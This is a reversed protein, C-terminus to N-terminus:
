ERIINVVYVKVDGNEATVCIELRNLGEEVPHYGEGAVTAKSSVPTATLSIFGCDEGVIVSYEQDKSSDFSPTLSIKNGNIDNIKLDSLWNNPNAQYAPEPSATEPMNLYVPISFVIPLNKADDGYAQYMKKGEAWPAEVNAMYQHTYTSRQTMNFKQLYITNQGRGVIYNSGLYYGGGLISRYPNTWPILAKENLEANTSGDRAFKLGNAINGGKM